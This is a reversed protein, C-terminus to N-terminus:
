KHLPVLMENWNQLTPVCISRNIISYSHSSKTAIKSTKTYKNYRKTDFLRTNYGKMLCIIQFNMSLKRLNICKNWLKEYRNLLKKYVQQVKQYWVAKCFVSSKFTRALNEYISVNIEYSKTASKSTKM